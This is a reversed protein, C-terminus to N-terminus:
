SAWIMIPHIPKVLFWQVIGSIGCGTNDEFFRNPPLGTLMDDGTLGRLLGESIGYSSDIEAALAFRISRLGGGAKFVRTNSKNGRMFTEVDAKAACDGM